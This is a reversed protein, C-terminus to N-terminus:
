KKRSLLLGLLMLFPPIIYVHYKVHVGFIGLYYSAIGTFALAFVSGLVLRFVFSLRDRLCFSVVLGPIITVYFFRLLTLFLVAFSERYLVIKLM